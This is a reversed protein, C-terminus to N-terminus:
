SQIAKRARKAFREIGAFISQEDLHAEAIVDAELGGTLWEDHWDSTLSYEDTQPGLNRIPWMRRTGTSVVMADYYGEPPLVAHRYEAPQRDFLEESIVAIIKVNLGAAEIRPLQKVLNVTSSSGQAFVYGQRPHGPKFDRIVYLGKAAAKLDHDAFKSRDAIAFDPRAVEISIIGVKPDRAAIEAAAFYGAAVDNYDWFNLHITHGRPFLKWVQTAFVGFHTRGDAATEPGSHAALIHLVGMRFKSDQNQQSWVRAPTYMLPTFAGYTGSIAWLGAFKGPDLSASQGVLGIATSVNGAEQIAAKIRTGLPNTLPDYHGWTSGHELNISESLDAALTIMRNDTVHNMWKVIESIARRTGAVEGPKRFLNISVQKEAGSLRNVARVTQPETPLNAVRLREDLFPDRSVDIKVPFDDKVGDGLEVLREALWDGLGDRDLVSMVVDINTKFQILRERADAVHGDRIGQFMVGFREEFTKALSIFYDSNMKMGYPHSQYSVLQREIARPWYGKTTHGVVIMPRRDAADWREMQTLTRLIQAYDNGNELHFVNWGYSTWQKVLDYDTFRSHIIGGLLVDDIGANNESLLIRLRKGVQLALAQTKLEQAHGETMAFEGELAIIKLSQPAGIMDWFAAKGGATAIGVGSPGGNVDNTLDTSEAHGALAKIGRLRAQEFLPHDALGRDHLLTKLAGAGRRFGLADIPLIAVAPDTYYRQNGTLRYRRELAQGLIMWLAYGTPINHGGALMFKDAFPHKPRRYDYSLGGLHPGALHACVNYPTYALPGGFHGTQAYNGLLVVMMCTMFGVDDLRQLLEDSHYTDIHTGM